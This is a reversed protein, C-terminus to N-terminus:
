SSTEGKRNAKYWKQLESKRHEECSHINFADTVPEPPEVNRANAVKGVFVRGCDSCKWGVPQTSVFYHQILRRPM